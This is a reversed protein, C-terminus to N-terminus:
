LSPHCVSVDKTNIFVKVQNWAEMFCRHCKKYHLYFNNALYSAGQLNQFSNSETKKSKMLVKKFIKPNPGYKVLQILLIRRPLVIQPPNLPTFM